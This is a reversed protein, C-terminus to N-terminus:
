YEDFASIMLADFAPGFERTEVDGEYVLAARGAPLDPSVCLMLNGGDTTVRLLRNSAIRGTEAFDAEAWGPIGDPCDAIAAITRMIGPPILGFSEQDPATFGAHVEGIFTRAPAPLRDFFAPPPGFERPDRGFWVLPDEGPPGEAVYLLIATDASVYARVDVLHTRFLETFHPILDLLDRNWLALAATSRAEPDPATVIPRWPEPLRAFEASGAEVPHLPWGDRVLGAVVDAFDVPAVDV